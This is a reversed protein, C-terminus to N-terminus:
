NLLLLINNLENIVVHQFLNAIDQDSVFEYSHEGETDSPIIFGKSHKKSTAITKISKTYNTAQNSDNFVRRLTNALLQNFQELETLPIEQTNGRNFSLFNNDQIETEWIHLCVLVLGTRMRDTFSIEGKNRDIRSRMILTSNEELLDIPTETKYTINFTM